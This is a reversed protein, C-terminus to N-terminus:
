EGKNKESPEKKAVELTLIARFIQEFSSEIPTITHPTLGMNKHQEELSKYKEMLLAIQDETKNNQAIAGARILLSKTAVKSEDYFKIYNDYDTKDSGGQREIKVFFETTNKQLETVGKDIREDYPAILQVHACAVLTLVFSILFTWVGLRQLETSKM